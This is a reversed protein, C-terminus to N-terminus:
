QSVWTAFWLASSAAIPSYTRVGCRYCLVLPALHPKSLSDSRGNQGEECDVHHPLAGLELDAVDAALARAAVGGYARTLEACLDQAANADVYNNFGMEGQLVRAQALRGEPDFDEEPMQDVILDALRGQSTERPISLKLELAGLHVPRAHLPMREALRQAVDKGLRRAEQRTLGPVLLRLQEIEIM